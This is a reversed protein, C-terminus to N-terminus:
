LYIMLCFYRLVSKIYATDNPTRAM